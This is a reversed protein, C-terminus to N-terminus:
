EFSQYKQIEKLMAEQVDERVYEKEDIIEAKYVDDVVRAFEYLWTENPEKSLAM